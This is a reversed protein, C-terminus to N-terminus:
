LSKSYGIGCSFQRQYGLLSAFDSLKALHVANNGEEIGAVNAEAQELRANQRYPPHRSRQDPRPPHNQAPLSDVEHLSLRCCQNNGPLTPDSMDTYIWVKPQNPESAIISSLIVFHSLFLCCCIIHNRIAMRSIEGLAETNPFRDQGGVVTTVGSDLTQGCRPRRGLTM